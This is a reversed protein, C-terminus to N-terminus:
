ALGRAPADQAIASRRNIEADVQQRAMELGKPGLLARLLQSAAIAVGLRPDILLTVLENRLNTNM